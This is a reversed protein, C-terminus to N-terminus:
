PINLTMGPQIDSASALGNVALIAEPTVDGFRCAITYITDGSVVSYTTPHAKLSRSGYNASWTGSAPITLVTGTAPKSNINLGNASFFSGLDLDYRRAICIPWEGKQLTYSAPRAVVPTPVAQQPQSQAQPQSTVAAQGGGSESSESSGSAATAAPTETFVGVQATTAAGPTQAIATQTGFTGVDGPTYVPFPLEGTPTKAPPPPTSAKLTCATLSFFMVLVVLLAIKSYKKMEQDGLISQGVSGARCLRPIDWLLVV